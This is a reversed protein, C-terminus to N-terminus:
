ASRQGPSDKTQHRAAARAARQQLKRKFCGHGDASTSRAKGATIARWSRMCISSSNRPCCHDRGRVAKPVLGHKSSESCSHEAAAAEPVGNVAAKYEKVRHNAKQQSVHEAM